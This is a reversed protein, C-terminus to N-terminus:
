TRTRVPTGSGPRTSACHAIWGFARLTARVRQVARAGPAIRRTDVAPLPEVDHQKRTEAAHESRTRETGGDERLPHKGPPAADAHEARSASQQEDHPHQQEDPVQGFRMRAPDCADAARAAILFM